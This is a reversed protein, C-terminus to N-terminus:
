KPKGFLGRLVNGIPDNSEQGGGSKNGGGLRPELERQLTSKAVDEAMSDIGITYQPNSLPGTLRVPVPVGVLQALDKGGLNAAAETIVAKATYDLTGNGVDI